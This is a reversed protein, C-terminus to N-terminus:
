LRPGLHQLTLPFQLYLFLMRFLFNNYKEEELSTIVTINSNHPLFINRAIYISRVRMALDM